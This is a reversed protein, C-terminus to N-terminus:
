QRLIRVSDVNHPPTVILEKGEVLWSGGEPLEGKIHPAGSLDTGHQFRDRNRGPAPNKPGPDVPTPVSATTQKILSSTVGNATVDVKSYKILTPGQGPKSYWIENGIHLGCLTLMDNITPPSAMRRVIRKYERSQQIDHWGTTRMWNWLEHVNLRLRTTNEQVVSGYLFENDGVTELKLGLQITRGDVRYEGIKTAGTWGNALSNGGNPEVPAHWWYNLNFKKSRYGTGQNLIGFGDLQRDHGYMDLMANHGIFDSEIDVELRLDKPINNFRAPLGLHKNVHRLDYAPYDYDRRLDGPLRPTQDEEGWCERNNLTGYVWAPFAAAYDKTANGYSDYKDKAERQYKIYAADDAIGMEIFDGKTAGDKWGFRFANAAAFLKHESSPKPHLKPYREHDNPTATITQVNQM